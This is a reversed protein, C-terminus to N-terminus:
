KSWSRASSDPTTRRLPDGLVVGLELLDDFLEEGLLGLLVVDIWRAEQRASCPVLGFSRRPRPRRSGGFSTASLSSLIPRPLCPPHRPRDVVSARRRHDFRLLRVFVSSRGGFFQRLFLELRRGLMTSASRIRASRTSSCSVAFDELHRAGRDANRDSDGEDRGHDELASSALSRGTRSRRRTCPGIARAGDRCAASRAWPRSAWACLPAQEWTVPPTVSVRSHSRSGAADRTQLSYASGAGLASTASRGSSDPEIRAGDGRRGAPCGRGERRAIWDEHFAGIRDFLSISPPKTTRGM